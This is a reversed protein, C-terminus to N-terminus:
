KYKEKLIENMRYECMAVEADNQLKMIVLGLPTKSAEEDTLMQRKAIYDLLGFDGFDLQDFGAMIAESSLPPRKISEFAKKIEDFQLDITRLINFYRDVNLKRLNIKPVVYRVVEVDNKNIAKLLGFYEDLTYEVINKKLDIRQAKNKLATYDEQTLIGARMLVGVRTFHDTKLLKM